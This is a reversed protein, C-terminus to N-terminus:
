GPPPPPAPARVKMPRVKTPPKSAKPKEEAGCGPMSYVLLLSFLMCWLARLM